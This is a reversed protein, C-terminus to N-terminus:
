TTLNQALLTMQSACAVGLRVRQTGGNIWRTGTTYGRGTLFNGMKVKGPTRGTDGSINRAWWDVLNSHLADVPTEADADATLNEIYWREMPDADARYEDTDALVVDPMELERGNRIWAQMGEIAWNLIGPLEALLEAKLHKNPQAPQHQCQILALRRWIGDNADAKPRHNGAVILHARSRFTKDNQRMANATVNEGSIVQNLLHGPWEGRGPLEGVTALRAGDLAAIWQLHQNSNAALRAGAIGAHYDGFMAALTELFTSKGSGRKGFLFIACEDRTDGAMAAGVWQKLFNAIKIRDMPHYHSLLADIFDTWKRSAAMPDLDAGGEDDHNLWEVADPLRRRIWESAYLGRVNGTACDLVQRLPLGVLEGDEDFTRGLITRAFDAMAHYNGQNLWRNRVDQNKGEADMLPIHRETYTALDHDLHHYTEWGQTGWVLWEGTDRDYSLLGLWHRAFGEALATQSVAGFALRESDPDDRRKTARWSDQAAMVKDALRRFMELEDADLVDSPQPKISIETVTPYSQM